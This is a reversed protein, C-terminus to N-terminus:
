QSTKRRGWEKRHYVSDLMKNYTELYYSYQKEDLLQRIEQNQEALLAEFRARMEDKTLEEELKVLKKMRYSHNLILNYFEDRKQGKLGMVTARDYFWLQLSDTEQPTFVQSHPKDNSQAQVDVVGISLLSFLLFSLNTKM